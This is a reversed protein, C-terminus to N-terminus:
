PPHIWLHGSSWDYQFAVGLSADDHWLSCFRPVIANAASAFLDVDFTGFLNSLKLVIGPSVCWDAKDMVRSLADVWANDKSAIWRPQLVLDHLELLAHLQVLRDWMDQSTNGFHQLVHFVVMNDTVVELIGPSVKDAWLKVARLVAELELVIIHHRMEHVAWFGSALFPSVEPMVLRLLAGWGTCSADTEVSWPPAKKPMFSKSQYRGLFLSWFELEKRAAWTLLIKSSWRTRTALCRHLNVQYFRILPVALSISQAKGCFRALARATVTGRAAVKLLQTALSSTQDVVKPPAVFRLKKSDVLVGLHVLLQSPILHSKEKKVSLGLEEFIGVLLGQLWCCSDEDSTWLLFDDLYPLVNVPENRRWFAALCVGRPMVKCLSRPNQIFGVVPKMFHEFVYPSSKLGFPLCCFSLLEGNINVTLFDVHEEAVELHFYADSLDLSLMFAGEEMRNTLDKLSAFKFRLDQLYVNLPRLDVILRWHGTGVGNKTKPILFAKSVHKNSM